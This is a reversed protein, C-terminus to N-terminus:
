GPPGFTDPATRALTESLTVPDLRDPDVGPSRLLEKLLVLRKGETDAVVGDFDFIICPRAGPPYQKM